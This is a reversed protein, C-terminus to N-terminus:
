SDFSAVTGAQVKAPKPNGEVIRVPQVFRYGRGYHNEVFRRGQREGLATRLKSIAVNLVSESVCQGSWIVELLENKTVLRDPNRVFYHVLEFVKPESVILEGQRRLQGRWTDLEFDEFCYVQNPQLEQQM